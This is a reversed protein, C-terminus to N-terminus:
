GRWIYIKEYKIVGKIIDDINNKLSLIFFRWFDLYSQLKGISILQLVM